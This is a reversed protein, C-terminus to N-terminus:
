REIIERIKSALVDIAFPKTVMEAGPALFGGRLAANEAYGTVFLVKLDPRRALAIEALQRGNTIPLGVDTLLLDIRQETEILKIATDADPAELYAYGLEELVETIILRVNADDEVVLVTEGHGRKTMAGAPPPAPEAEDDLARRLYLKITTGQGIESYLRVHGASQKIFGFIMSLGLGTGQGPPKTTFFPEFAKAITEASMGIGTDSVAIVVYDGAAVEDHRGAYGADLHTNATEITLRGGDPMADRANVALNLIANELQHPDTLAPWVAKGLVCELDVREGLTRHFLEEMNAILRNVNAPKVDLSQRRAFALLRHTLIEARQASAAAAEVFRTLEDFRRTDIRRQLMDLAGIIATLINNFDHAIGGTLQGLVEMKQSQRLADEAKLREAVADVVRQELTANLRQLTEEANRKDTRDRVIKLFGIPLDDDDTLPMMEGSAWFRSGDKRLHWREDSGRGRTLAAGMEKDPIGDARDEPTFFDDCRRGCMEDQTWGFIRHAGENWSTILGKIDMSIIGYDVASELILRHRREELSKKAVALRLELLSAVQRSLAGLAALQDPTLERPERDIVCLTGLPFGDPTVLPAGAYFRLDPDGAVLPNTEFRPDRAADGIIFIGDQQIAHACFGVSRPTESISLGVAAKFWQRRDDVLSILAIPVGCVQAAVRVIDDFEAEPPTDLIQYRQLAALRDSEDWAPGDQSTKETVPVYEHSVVLPYGRVGFPM